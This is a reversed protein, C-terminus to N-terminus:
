KHRELERLVAEIIAPQGAVKHEPLNLLPSSALNALSRNLNGQTDALIFFVGWYRSSRMAKWGYEIALRTKGIGGAQYTGKNPTIAVARKRELESGLKDIELERGKFLRGMSYYPLNHVSVEDVGLDEVAKSLRESVAANDPDELLSVIKGMEVRIEERLAVEKELEGIIDAFKVEDGKIGELIGSLASKLKVTERQAVEKPLSRSIVNELLTGGFPISKFAGRSLKKMFNRARTIKRQNDM